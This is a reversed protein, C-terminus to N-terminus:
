KGQFKQAPELDPDNGTVEDPAVARRPFYIMVMISGAISVPCIIIALWLLLQLFNINERSIMSVTFLLIVTSLYGVFDSVYMLFGFNSKNRLMAIIREFITTHFLVYPVYLCIGILVMFRFASAESWTEVHWHCGITILACVFSIATVVMATLFARVNNRLFVVAASIVTILVAVLTESQAFLEPKSQGFASWIERAYDDRVSRFVTLLTMILVLVVFGPAYRRFFRMREAGDIPTRPARYVLDGRNPQPIQELIWVGLVLTPWFLLATLFPMWFLSVGYYEMLSAGVSKVVGSAMIFSACLGAALAETVQRGELFGFVCGFVMGLPLGNLFLCLPKAWQPVLAYILLAGHAIAVLVIISWARRHPTMESVVKIGVMKSLAYGLIQSLILVLKYDVGGLYLDQYDSVTFPKRFAYMSFYTMFAGAVSWFVLVGAPSRQLWNSVKSSQFPM